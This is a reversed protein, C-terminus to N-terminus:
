KEIAGCDVAAQRCACAPLREIRPLGRELLETVAALSEGMTKLVMQMDVAEEKWADYDTVTALSCYCMGAERALGCEPSMTMGVVDAFMRFMSSEARTSFRPGEVCLYRGGMHCRAGTEKAAEDFVANMQPCTPDPMSIHVARDDFFTYDRGKTFDVMQDVIVLDGPRYDERLSGVACPSVVMEVGLSKLAAINARYPVRHPPHQHAKGHRHLFAVEAGNIRGVLIEDSPKGYATDPFVTRELEFADPNYIGTGGIM